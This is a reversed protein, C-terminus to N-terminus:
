KVVTFEIRRNRFKGEDTDNAAVPKSDGYGKSVLMAPDVGQNILYTRVADARAQSLQLNSASDGSNDTHGGIEIVTGTPAAKMAAAAKNLFDDSGAPIEASGSAFNIVDLNLAAVLDQATFGPKLSALASEARQTALQVAQDVNFVGTRVSSRNWLWIALLALALLALLPWILRNPRNRAAVRDETYVADRVTSAVAATPGSIYSAFEAPLQAPIQGGPALRQVIRPLLFALASATTAASLGARSAITSVANNGLASEVNEASIAKPSGGLWSSVSDGLGVLRFRDLLGRLGTGQENIYTLASSLLTSAKSGSLGFKSQLEDLVLDMAGM